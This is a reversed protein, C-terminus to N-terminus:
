PLGGLNGESDLTKKVESLQELHSKEETIIRNVADHASEEVQSILEYYFLISDKEMQIGLEVAQIDTDLRSAMDSDVVEDTFVSNDVLTQVYQSEQQDSLDNQTIARFTEQFIQVHQREMETLYHFVQRVAAQESSRSMVDYFAIGKHEIEIAINFLDTVTLATSM